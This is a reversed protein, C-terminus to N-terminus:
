GPRLRLLLMGSCLLSRGPRTLCRTAAPLRKVDPIALNDSLAGHLKHNAAVAAVKSGIGLGLHSAAKNGARERKRVRAETFARRFPRREGGERLKRRAIALRRRSRREWRRRVFRFREQGSRRQRDLVKARIRGSGQLWVFTGQVLCRDM